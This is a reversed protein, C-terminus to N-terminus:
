LLNVVKPAAARKPNAVSVLFCAIKSWTTYWIPVKNHIDISHDRTKNGLKFNFHQISEFLLTDIFFFKSYWELVCFCSLISVFLHLYHKNTQKNLHVALPLLHILSCGRVFLQYGMKWPNLRVGLFVKVPDEM